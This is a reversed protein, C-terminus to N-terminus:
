KPFLFTLILRAGWGEPGNPTSEAYYRVGGGISIPQKGLKTVKTAVANFPMSTQNTLVDYTTESNLTYTWGGATTYSVFPQAYAQQIDTANSGGGVDWLYYGLAGVTWPGAQKLVVGEIGAGFQNLGLDDNGTPLLFAPGLGWILGPRSPSIFFTQLTDGFGLQSRGPIVDDQSIVPLVTRMILNWDANLTVPMVPQINVSTRHGKDNPGINQDYNFQLPVSILSAVPNSLQKALDSASQEASVQTAAAALTVVAALNRIM